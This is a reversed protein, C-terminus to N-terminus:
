KKFRKEKEEMLSFTGQVKEPKIKFKSDNIDPESRFGIYNMYSPM